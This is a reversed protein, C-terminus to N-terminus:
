IKAPNPKNKLWRVSTLLPAFLDNSRSIKLGALEKNSPDSNKFKVFPIDSILALPTQENGEGMVLVGAAALGDMINAKTVKLKRGFIDPTGIYSNLASFGSHALAVGMTGWRLPITRSDTIIVGVKKNGFRRKLYKRIMNATKQSNAPHLIYYGNANSEDIGASPMLMSNKITLIFGFQSKNKPLYYEAERKTLRDKDIKDTKIIRGECISIIKSTVLLVSNDEMSPLYEDLIKFIDRDEQTIKHTKLSVVKM